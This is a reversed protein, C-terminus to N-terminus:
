KEWVLIRKGFKQRIERIISRDFEPGRIRVRPKRLFPFPYGGMKVLENYALVALAPLRVTDEYNYRILAQLARDDGEVHKEWLHVAVWGSLGDLGGKRKWGLHTELKKLGTPYGLRQFLPQLDICPIRELAHPFVKHLLVHDFRDGGFTVICKARRIFDSFRHLNRGRVFSTYANKHVIGIVTPIFHGPRPQYAEIDIFATDNLFNALIRWKQTDPLHQFFYFSHGKTLEEEARYVSKEWRAKLRPHYPLKQLKDLFDNWDLIGQAWFAEEDKESIKPFLIFSRQLM